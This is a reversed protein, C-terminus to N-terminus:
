GLVSDSRSEYGRELLYATLDDLLIAGVSAAMRRRWALFVEGDHGHLGNVNRWLNREGCSECQRTCSLPGVEEASRGCGRCTRYDARPM